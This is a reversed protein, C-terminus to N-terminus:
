IQYIIFLKAFELNICNLNYSKHFITQYNTLFVNRM